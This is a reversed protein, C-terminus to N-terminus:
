DEKNAVSVIEQLRKREDDSYLVMRRTRPGHQKASNHLRFVGLSFRRHYREHIYACHYMVNANVNADELPGFDNSCAKLDVFDKFPRRLPIILGEIELDVKQCEGKGEYAYLDGVIFLLDPKEQTDTFYSNHAGCVLNVRYEKNIRGLIGAFLSNVTYEEGAIYSLLWLHHYQDSFEPKWLQMTVEILALLVHARKEAIFVRSTLPIARHYLDHSNGDGAPDHPRPDNRIPRNLRVNPPFMGHGYGKEEFGSLGLQPGKKWPSGPRIRPPRKGLIRESTKAHLNGELADPLLLEYFHKTEYSPGRGLVKIDRFYYALNGKLSAFEMINKPATFPVVTPDIYIFTDWLAFLAGVTHMPVKADVLESADSFVVDFNHNTRLSSIDVGRHVIQVPLDNELKTLVRLLRQTYKITSENLGVVIGIPGASQKLAYLFNPSFSPISVPIHRKLFPSDTSTPDSDDDPFESSIDRKEVDESQAGKDNVEKEQDGKEEVGEGQIEGKEEVGEGQIDGKEGHEKVRNGEGEVKVGQEDFSDEKLSEETEDKTIVINNKEVTPQNGGQNENNGIIGRLFLDLKAVNVFKLSQQYKESKDGQESIDTQHDTKNAEKLEHIPMKGLLFPVVRKWSYEGSEKSDSYCASYLRLNMMSARIHDPIRGHTKTVDWDPALENLLKFHASCLDGQAHPYMTRLRTYLDHKRSLRIAELSRWVFVMFVVVGVVATIRKVLM